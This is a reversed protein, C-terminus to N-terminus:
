VPAEGYTENIENIPIYAIIDKNLYIMDFKTFCKENFYKDSKLITYDSWSNFKHKLKCLCFTGKKPFGDKEITKWQHNM